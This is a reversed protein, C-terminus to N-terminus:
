IMMCIFWITMFLRITLKRLTVGSDSAELQENQYEILKRALINLAKPHLYRLQLETISKLSHIPMELMVQPTIGAVAEPNIASLDKGSVEALLLGLRSVERASWSYSKGLAQTKMMMALYFRRQLPDCARIHYFLQHTLQLYTNEPIRRMFIMPVGCLLNNMINLYKADTWRPNLRIYKSAVVGVQHRNLDPHSGIFSLIKNDSLNLNSMERGSVYKFLPRFKELTEFTIKNNPTTGKVVFWTAALKERALRMMAITRASRLVYSGPLREVDSLDGGILIAFADVATQMYDRTINLRCHGIHLYELFPMNVSKKGLFTAARMVQGSPCHELTDPGTENASPPIKTKM